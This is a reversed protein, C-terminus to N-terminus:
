FTISWGNIYGVDGAGGDFVRLRWTGHLAESSLDFSHDLQGKAIAGVGETVREIGRVRRQWYRTLLSAGIIALVLAAILNIIGTRRAEAIMLDRNSAVAIALDLDPISAFSTSYEAGDSATFRGHGSKLSSMQGAIPQFYPM